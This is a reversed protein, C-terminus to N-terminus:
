IPLNWRRCCKRTLYRVNSITYKLLECGSRGKDWDPCSWRPPGYRAQPEEGFGEFDRQGQKFSLTRSTREQLRMYLKTGQESLTSYVKGTVINSSWDNPVPFWDREDFFVPDSLLRCGIMSDIHAAVAERYKSIARILADSTAVGNAIGLSDWALRIPASISSVLRGYVGILNRPSKLRFVFFGGEEIARLLQQSPKWFNVEEFPGNTRLFDFWDNDTDAVYLENM